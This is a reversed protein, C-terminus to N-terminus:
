HGRLRHAYPSNADHGSHLPWNNYPIVFSYSQKPHGIKVPNLEIYNITRWIHEPNDLFVKWGPGGWLPHDFQRLGQERLRLRSAIQLNAIMEEALHKHKRILLHVHDPMIACAYCTYKFQKMADAFADAIFKVETAGFELLPHM